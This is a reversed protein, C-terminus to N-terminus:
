KFMKPKKIRKMPINMIILRKPTRMFYRSFITKRPQISRINPIPNPAILPMRMVEIRNIPTVVKRGLQSDYKFCDLSEGLTVIIESPIAPIM